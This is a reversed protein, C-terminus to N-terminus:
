DVRWSGQSDGGRQQLEMNGFRSTVPRQLLGLDRPRPKEKRSFFIRPGIGLVQSCSVRLHALRVRNRGPSFFPKPLWPEIQASYIKGVSSSEEPRSRALRPPASPFSSKGLLPSPGSGPGSGASRSPSPPFFIKRRAPFCALALDRDLELAPNVDLDLVL